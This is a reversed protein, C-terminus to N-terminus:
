ELKLYGLELCIVLQVEVEAASGKAIRLFHRLEKDSDRAYGEGINLAISTVARQMQSCLSYKERDPLQDIVGYVLKILQISKKWVILNQYNGM